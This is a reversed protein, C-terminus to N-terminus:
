DMKREWYRGSFAKYHFLSIDIINQLGKNYKIVKLKIKEELNSFLLKLFFSSKIGELM